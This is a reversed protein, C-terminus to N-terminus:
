MEERSLVWKVLFISKFCGRRLPACFALSLIVFKEMLLLTRPLYNGRHPQSLIPSKASAISIAQSLWLKLESSQRVGQTELVRAHSNRSYQEDEANQLEANRACRGVKATLHGAALVVIHTKPSRM